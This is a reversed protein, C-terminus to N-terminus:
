RRRKRQSCDCFRRLSQRRSCGPFALLQLHLLVSPCIRANSLMWLGKTQSKGDPNATLLTIPSAAMPTRFSAYCPSKRNSSASMGTTPPPPVPLEQGGATLIARYRAHVTRCETKTLFKTESANIQHCTEPRLTTMENAWVDANSELVFLSNAYCTTVASSIRVNTIRPPQSSASARLRKADVSRHLTKVTLMGDTVVPLWQTKGAVQFAPKMSLPRPVSCDNPSLRTKGLHSPPIFDSAAASAPPMSLTRSLVAFVRAVAGLALTSPPSFAQFIPPLTRTSKDGRMIPM